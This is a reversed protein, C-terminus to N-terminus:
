KATVKTTALSADSPLSPLTVTLPVGDVTAAAIAKNLMTLYMKLSDRKVLADSASNGLKVADSLVEVGASTMKVTQGNKDTIEIGARKLHVCQNQDDFIAVEGEALTIRYRRDFVVLAILEGVAGLRCLIAEAGSKAHSRFGYPYFVDAWDAWGGLGKTEVRQAGPSDDTRVVAGKTIAFQLAHSIREIAGM